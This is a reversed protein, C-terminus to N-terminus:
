RRYYWCCSVALHNGTFDRGGGSSSISINDDGPSAEAGPSAARKQSADLLGSLPHTIGVPSAVTSSTTIAPSTDIVLSETYKKEDMFSVRPKSSIDAIVDGVSQVTSSSSSSSSCSSMEALKKAMAAEKVMRIKKELETETVVPATQDDSNANSSQQQLSSMIEKAARANKERTEEERKEQERREEKLQKEKSERQLVELRGKMHKLNLSNEQEKREEGRRRMLEKWRMLSSTPLRQM